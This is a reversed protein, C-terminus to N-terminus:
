GLFGVTVDRRSIHDCLLLLLFSISRRQNQAPIPTSGRVCAHSNIQTM